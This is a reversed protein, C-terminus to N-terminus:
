SYPLRVNESMAIFLTEFREGEEASNYSTNKIDPILLREPFAKRHLLSVVKIM